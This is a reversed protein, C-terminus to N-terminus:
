SSYTSLDTFLDPYDIFTQFSADYPMLMDALNNVSSNSLIMISVRPCSYALALLFISSITFASRSRCMCSICLFGIDPALKLFVYTTVVILSKLIELTDTLIKKIIQLQNQQNEITQCAPWGAMWLKM